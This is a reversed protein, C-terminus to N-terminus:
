AAVKIVKPDSLHSAKFIVPNDLSQMYIRFINFAGVSDANWITSGEKYLGRKVRGSRKVYKRSVEPSMPSCQSSYAEKVTIMQIGYLNLKYKLLGTIKRYPLAHFQQNIRDGMRKNKRIGTIDGVIVTHIDNKRCYEAIYRTAKHLYDQICNNKKEYLSLVHKSRKPHKVGKANQQADHIAQIRAIAKDYKRTISLYQRGVIFSSGDSDYCTMLNHVGMDISLYHGNDPLFVPDNFEYIVIIRMVGDEPMYLKIQKIREMDAFLDNEIFLYEEHIGYKDAMHKKLALPLTFRIKTDSIRKMGNQMYTIPIPDHKFRPPNPNKVGGTKLLVFYSKWAKDLLKCVEQATQSPLSKYWINGKHAKKQYYWDPYEAGTSADYSKREYNCVNWLKYAAYGMHNIINSEIANVHITTEKSLEM